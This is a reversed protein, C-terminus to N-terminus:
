DEKVWVQFLEEIQQKSMLAALERIGAERAKECSESEVTLETRYAQETELEFRIRYKKM